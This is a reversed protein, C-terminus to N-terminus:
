LFPVFFCMIVCYLFPRFFLCMYFMYTWFTDFVPSCFVFCFFCLDVLDLSVLPACSRCRQHTFSFGSHKCVDLTVYACLACRRLSATIKEPHKSRWTASYIPTEWSYGTFQGHSRWCNKHSGTQFLQSGSNPGAKSTMQLWSPVLIRSKRCRWLKKLKLELSPQEFYGMGPFHSISLHGLPSSPQHAPPTPEDWLKEISKAPVVHHISMRM